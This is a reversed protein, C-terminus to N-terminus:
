KGFTGSGAEDIPVEESNVPGSHQSGVQLPRSTSDTQGRRKRAFHVMSMRGTMCFSVTIQQQAYRNGLRGDAEDKQTFACRSSTLKKKYSPWKPPSRNFEGASLIMVRASGLVARTPRRSYTLKKSREMSWLAALSLGLISLSRQHRVPSQRLRRRRYM